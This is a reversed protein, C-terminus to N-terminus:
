ERQQVLEKNIVETADKLECMALKIPAFTSKKATKTSGQGLHAEKLMRQSRIQQIKHNIEM